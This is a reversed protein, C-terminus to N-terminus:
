VGRDAKAPRQSIDFGLSCFQRREARIIQRRQNLKAEDFHAIAGRYEGMFTITRQISRLRRTHSGGRMRVFKPDILATADPNSM